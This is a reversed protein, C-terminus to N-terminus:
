FGEGPKPPKPMRKKQQPFGEEDCIRNWVGKMADFMLPETKLDLLVMRLFATPLEARDKGAKDAEELATILENHAQFELTSLFRDLVADYGDDPTSNSTSKKSKVPPTPKPNQKKSKM